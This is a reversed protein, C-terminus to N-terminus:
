SWSLDNSEIPLKRIRNGTAQYIANCVAPALPPLTPEGLGRPAEKSKVFHIEIDPVQSIRLWKYNHFNSEVTSGGRTTIKGFLAASLGELIGGQVQAEAGPPNVVIGCDVAVFIKKVKLSGNRNVSVEAVEAVFAGQNYSAAIGLGQGKPLKRGWRSKEVVLSVVRNLRGADLKFNGFVPVAQEHGIFDALFDAPDKNISIAVEDLFCQVVFVNSSHSVARWQGIPINSKVENYELLLNDVFGAPFEYGDLETGSPSGDRELWTVRSSNAIKHYWGTIKNNEDLSAKLKHVGGPRYYDHGIDDERSWVVKVPTKSHKSLLVAEIAYDIYYRRGFGGGARLMHIRINEPDFKFIKSIAESIAGPNQTPAWIEILNETFSATCNIPELPVHALFPVEYEAEIISKANEFVAEPNGDKRVEEGPQSLQVRFKEFAEDTSDALQGDRGWEVELANAAKFASWTSTALVAVGNIFNPSNPLIVHGGYEKNDIVFVDKVGTVLKAQTDDFRSVKGRHYPCKKITAFLMNPLRFDIGYLQQGVVIKNVDTGSIRKGVIKFDKQNKFTIEEPLPITAAREVLDKYPVKNSSQKHFVEGDDAYCDRKNVKLYEAGAQVLVERVTAGAKRMDEWNLRVGFSGGAWQGGYKEENYDAQEIQVKEWRVCLEEAIIMPLSTKIGQGIEPNKAIIIVSGDTGIKIFPSFETFDAEKPNGDSTCAQFGLVLGGNFVTYLKLFTRREM